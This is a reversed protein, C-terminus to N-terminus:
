NLNHIILEKIILTFGKLVVLGEKNIFSLVDNKREKLKAHKYKASIRLKMEYSQGLATTYSTVPKEIFQQDSDVALWRM